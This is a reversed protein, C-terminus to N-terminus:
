WRGSAGGGGFGGGGFGGFGGGGFGGGFGGGYYMGGGRRGGAAAMAPLLYGFVGGALALLLLIVLGATGGLLLRGALPLLLGGAAASLFRSIRGLFSLFVFGFLLYAMVPSGRGTDRRPLSEAAFEGRAARVIAAAGAEIGEEYRGERFLPVMIGDIIRGTLLDTLVGELGRGVEIRIRRENKVVLLLVGNDRGKQGLKWSEVTRISFDELSEEELSDITLVAVQTSDSRDFAQLDRELRAAAEPGLLAAYDNVYGRPAPVELAIAVLPLLCFLVTALFAVLRKGSGIPTFSGRFM